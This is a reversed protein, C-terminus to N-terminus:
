TNQFPLGKTNISNYMHLFSKSSKEWNYKNLVALRGNKGLEEISDSKILELLSTAFSSPSFSKYVIGCSTENVIYELSNCDSVMVPKQFYMYQFLKNPSSNDNQESKLHPILAIDSKGLLSMTESFPKQGFFIVHETLNKESVIQELSSRYAGSGVIWLVINKNISVIDKLGVIVTQLGRHKTIGGAYFLILKENQRSNTLKYVNDLNFTNSLVIVKKSPINFNCIRAKMEKVVTIIYDAKKCYEEEYKRWQENNSILKGLFTNTHESTELL